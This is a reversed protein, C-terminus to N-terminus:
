VLHSLKKLSSTGMIEASSTGMFEKSFSMIKSKGLNLANETQFFDIHSALDIQNDKWLHKRLIYPFLFRQMNKPVSAPYSIFNMVMKIDWKKDYFFM